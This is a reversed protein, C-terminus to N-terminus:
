PGLHDTLHGTLSGLPKDLSRAPTWTAPGHTWALDPVPPAPEPLPTSWHQTRVTVGPLSEGAWRTLQAIHRSPETGGDGLDAGVHVLHVTRARHLLRHLYAAFIGDREPRGPLKNARQLDLPMFSPPPSGDPLISENVDLVFVEDFDLGRSELLGLVQLGTFPEGELDVAHQGIWRQLQARADSLEPERGLREVCRIHLAVIDRFGAWAPCM